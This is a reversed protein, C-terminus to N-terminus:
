RGFGEDRRGRIKSWLFRIYGIPAFYWPYLEVVVGTLRAYRMAARVADAEDPNAAEIMFSQIRGDHEFEYRYLNMAHCFRFPSRASNTGWFTVTAM